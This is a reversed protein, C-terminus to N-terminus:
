ESGKKDDLEKEEKIENTDYTDTVKGGIVNNPQDGQEEIQKMEVEVDEGMFLNRIQYMASKRSILNNELALVVMNLIAQLNADTMNGFTVYNKVREKGELYAVIGIIKNLGIEVNRRVEQVRSLIETLRIRTTEESVNSGALVDSISYEPYDKIIANVLARQKELMVRASSGQIELLKMSSQPDKNYLVTLKKYKDQGVEGATRGSIRDIGSGVIIPDGALYFINRIFCELENHRDVSYFLQKMDYTTTIEVLPLVGGEYITEDRREDGVEVYSMATGDQKKIYIKKVDEKEPKGGDEPLTLQVGNIEAYLIENGRSIVEYEDSPYYSLIYPFDDNTGDSAKDTEATNSNITQVEVLISKGLILDRTLFIKEQELSMKDIINEVFETESYSPEIPSGVALATAINVVKPVANFVPITEPFLNNVVFNNDSYQTSYYYSRSVEIYPKGNIENEDDRSFRVEANNYPASM